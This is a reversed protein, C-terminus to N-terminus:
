EDAVLWAWGVRGLAEICSPDGGDVTHGRMREIWSIM